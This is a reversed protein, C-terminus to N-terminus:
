SAHLCAALDARTVVGAVSNDAHDVVVLHRLGMTVFLRYARSLPCDAYVVYPSRVMVPGLDLPQPGSALRRPPTVPGGGDFGASSLARDRRTNHGDHRHALLAAVHERLVLGALPRKLPDEPGDISSVVPYAGHSTERLAESCVSATCLQSLVKPVSMVDSVLKRDFSRPVHKELFPIKKSQLAVEYFGRSVLNGVFRAVVTTAVIPLLMHVNGTGELVIVVLSVTTRQVGALLAVAGLVGLHRQAPIQFRKSNEFKTSRAAAGGLCAGCYILPLFLGGPLATGFVLLLTAFALCGCYFLSSASFAGGALIKKIVTERPAFWLSALENVQGTDCGFRVAFYPDTTWAHSRGKMDDEWHEQVCGTTKAVALFALTTVGVGLAAEATRAMVRCRRSKPSKHAIFRRTKELHAWARVFFGGMLGGVLGAPLALVLLEVSVNPDSGGLSILGYHSLKILGVIGHDLALASFVALSSAVLGRWLLKDDWFSSAEELAFLVGGVPAGFAAAFGCASGLSLFDRRDIDTRFFSPHGDPLMQKRLTVGGTLFSGAMAGLHVLPGEPGLSAGAGVAMATGFFKVVFCLPSLCGRVRVGNLYAKVVPIGSGAAGPALLTTAGAALCALLADFIICSRMSAVDDGFTKQRHHVICNTLRSLAVAVCGSIIGLTATIFWRWFTRGSYGLLMRKTAPTYKRAESLSADSGFPDYNLSGFGEENTEEHLARRILYRARPFRRPPAPPAPPADEEDDSGDRHGPLPSYFTDRPQSAM